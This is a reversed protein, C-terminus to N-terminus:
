PVRWPGSVSYSLGVPPRLPGRALSLRRNPGFMQVGALPKAQRDVRPNMARGRDSGPAPGEQGDLAEQIEVAMNNSLLREANKEWAIRPAANPQDMGTRPMEIYVPHFDKKGKGTRVM